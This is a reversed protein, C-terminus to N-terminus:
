RGEHVGDDALRKTLGQLAEAEEGCSSLFAIIEAQSHDSLAAVAGGPCKVQVMSAGREHSAAWALVMAAVRPLAAPTTTVETGLAGDENFFADVGPLELLWGELEYHQEPSLHPATVAFVPM